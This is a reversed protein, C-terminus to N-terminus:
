IPRPIERSWAKWAQTADRRTLEWVFLVHEFAPSRVTEMPGVFNWADSRLWVLVRAYNARQVEVRAREFESRGTATLERTLQDSLKAHFQRNWPGGPVTWVELRAMAAAPDTESWWQFDLMSRVAAVVDDGGLSPRPASSAASGPTSSSPAPTARTASDPGSGGSCGLVAVLGGTVIVSRLHM